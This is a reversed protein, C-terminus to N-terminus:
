KYDYNRKDIVLKKVDIVNYYARCNKSIYVSAIKNISKITSLGQM